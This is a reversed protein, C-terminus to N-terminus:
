LVDATAAAKQSTLVEELERVKSELSERDRATRDLRSELDANASKLQELVRQSTQSKQQYRVIDGELSRIEANLKESGEEAVMRAYRERDLDKKVKLATQNYNIALGFSVAVLVGALLIAVVKMAKKQDAEM